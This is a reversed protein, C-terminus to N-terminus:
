IDDGAVVHMFIVVQYWLSCKLILLHHIKSVRVLNHIALNATVEPNQVIEVMDNLRKKRVHDLKLEVGALKQVLYGLQGLDGFM